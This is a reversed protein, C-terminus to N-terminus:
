RPAHQLLSSCDISIDNVTYDLTNTISKSCPVKSFHVFQPHSRRRDCATLNSHQYCKHLWPNYDGSFCTPTIACAKMCHKLSKFKGFLQLGGAVHFGKDINLIKVTCHCRFWVAADCCNCTVIIIICATTRFCLLGRGRTACRPMARNRSISGFNFWATVHDSWVM